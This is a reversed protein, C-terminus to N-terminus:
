IIEAQFCSCGSLLCSNCGTCVLPPIIVNWELLHKNLAGHRHTTPFSSGIQLPAPLDSDPFFEAPLPHCLHSFRCVCLPPPNWASAQPLLLSYGCLIVFTGWTSVPHLEATSCKGPMPPGHNSGWSQCLVIFILNFVVISDLHSPAGEETKQNSM